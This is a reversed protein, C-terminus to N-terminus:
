RLAVRSGAKSETGHREGEGREGEGRQQQGPPHAGEPEDGQREAVGAGALIRAVRRHTAAVAVAEPPDAEEGDEQQLRRQGPGDRQRHLQRDQGTAREAREVGQVSKAGASM